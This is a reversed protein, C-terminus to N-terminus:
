SRPHIEAQVGGAALIAPWESRHSDLKHLAVLRFRRCITAIMMQLILEGMAGGICARPGRGFPFYACAPLAREFEPTWREPRFELPEDFFRGDRQVVWSSVFMRAGAPITWGGIVDEAVARRFMMGAPPCLRLAEKMVMGLYHLEHLDHMVPDRNGIVLQLEAALEADVVPHEAVLRLIQNLATSSSYGALTYAVLEDRIQADTLTLGEKGLSALVSLFDYGPTGDRRREAIRNLVWADLAQTAKVYKSNRSRPVWSPLIAGIPTLSAMFMEGVHRTEEGPTTGFFIQVVVNLVLDILDQTMQPRHGAVWGSVAAATERVILDGYARALKEGHFVPAVLRRIQRAYEGNNIQMANGFFHRAWKSATTKHYNDVNRILVHEILDPHGLLFAGGGPLPIYAVDGYEATMRELTPLADRQWDLLARVLKVGRPGPPRDRRSPPLSTLDNAM